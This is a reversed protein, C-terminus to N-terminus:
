YNLSLNMAIQRLFPMKSNSLYHYIISYSNYIIIEDRPDHCVQTLLKWYKKWYQDDIKYFHKKQELVGIKKIIEYTKTM